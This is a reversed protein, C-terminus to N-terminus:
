ILKICIKVKSQKSYLSDTVQGTYRTVDTGPLSLLHRQSHHLGAPLQDRGGPHEQYEAPGVSCVILYFMGKVSITLTM